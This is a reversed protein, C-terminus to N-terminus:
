NSILKTATRKFSLRHRTKCHVRSGYTWCNTESPFMNHSHARIIFVRETRSDLGLVRKWNLRCTLANPLPLCTDKTVLAGGCSSMFHLPSVTGFAIRSPVPQQLTTLKMGEGSWMRYHTFHGWYTKTSSQTAILSPISAKSSPFYRQRRGPISVRSGVAHCRM